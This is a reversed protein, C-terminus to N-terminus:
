LFVICAIERNAQSAQSLPCHPGCRITTGVLTNSFQSIARTKAEKKDKSLASEERQLFEFLEKGAEFHERIIAVHLLALLLALTPVRGIREMDANRRVLNDKRVLAHEPAFWPVIENEVLSM